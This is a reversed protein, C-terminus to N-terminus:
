GIYTLIKGVCLSICMAEQSGKRAEGKSGECLGIEVDPHPWHSGKPYSSGEASRSQVEKRCRNVGGENIQCVGGRQPAGHDDAYLRPWTGDVDCHLGQVPHHM